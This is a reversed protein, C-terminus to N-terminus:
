FQSSTGGSPYRRGWVAAFHARAAALDEVDLDVGLERAPVGPPPASLGSATLNGSTVLGAADILYLKEHMGPLYRLAIRADGILKDVGRITSPMVRDLGSPWRVVLRVQARPSLHALLWDVGPETVYAVAIDVHHSQHLGKRLLFAQTDSELAM